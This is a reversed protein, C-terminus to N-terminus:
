RWARGRWYDCMLAKEWEEGFVKVSICVAPWLLASLQVLCKGVEAPCQLGRYTGPIPPFKARRKPLYDASSDLPGVQAATHVVSVWFASCHKCLCLSWDLCELHSLYFLLCQRAQASFPTLSISEGDSGWRHLTHGKLLGQHSAAETGGQEQFHVSPCPQQCHCHRPLTCFLKSSVRQHCFLPQIVLIFLRCFGAPLSPSPRRRM